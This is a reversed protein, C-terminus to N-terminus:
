RGSCSGSKERGASGLPDLRRIWVDGQLTDFFLKRGVPGGVDAATPRLGLEDLAAHAAEINRRGIGPLGGSQIQESGGFIKIEVGGLDVRQSLCWDVMWRISRDVYKFDNGRAEGGHPMAAHCILGFGGRYHMSVAVCSGLITQVLTPTKSAFVEGVKLFFRERSPGTM